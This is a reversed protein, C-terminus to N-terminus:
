LVTILFVFKLKEQTKSYMEASKAIAFDFTIYLNCGLTRLYPMFQIEAFHGKFIRLSPIISVDDSSCIM